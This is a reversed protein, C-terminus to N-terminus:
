SFFLPFCQQSFSPFLLHRSFGSRWGDRCLDRCSGRGEARGRGRKEEERSGSTGRSEATCLLGGLGSLYLAQGLAVSGTHDPGAASAGGEWQGGSGTHNGPTTRAGRATLARM